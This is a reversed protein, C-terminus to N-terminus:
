RLAKSKKGRLGKKTLYNHCISFSFPIPSFIIYEHIHLQTGKSYLPFFFITNPFYCYFFFLFLVISGSSNSILTLHSLFLDLIDGLSPAQVVTHIFTHHQSLSVQSLM